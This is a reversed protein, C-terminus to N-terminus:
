WSVESGNVISNFLEDVYEKTAKNQLSNQLNNVINYFLKASPIQADTNNENIETIIHHKGLLQQWVGKEENDVCVYINGTREAYIM